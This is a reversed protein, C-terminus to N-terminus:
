VSQSSAKLRAHYAETETTYCGLYERKGNITVRSVWKGSSKDLNVGIFRSTLKPKYDDPNFLGGEIKSLAEQYASSAEIEDTFYGLHVNVGEYKIQAVWKSGGMSWSVGIYKSTTPLIPQYCTTMNERQTVIRLNEVRDDSKNGNIHDIVRVMGSPKHGLFAMAVLQSFKYTRGIGHMRLGTQRYGKDVYGKIVGGKYFRERGDTFTVLRDLSRVRGLSSVQYYGEYNPVDRWEEKEKEM